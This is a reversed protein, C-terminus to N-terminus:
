FQSSSYFHRFRCIGNFHSLDCLNHCKALIRYLAFQLFTVFLSVWLDVPEKLKLLAIDHEMSPRDYDEHMIITEVELNKRHIM